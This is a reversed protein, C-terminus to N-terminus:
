HFELNKRRFYYDPSIDGSTWGLPFSTLFSQLMASPFTVNKCISQSHSHSLCPNPFPPPIQRCTPALLLHSSDGDAEPRNGEEEEGGEYYITIWENMRRRGGKKLFNREM